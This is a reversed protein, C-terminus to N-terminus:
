LWRWSGSATGRGPRQVSQRTLPRLQLSLLRRCGPVSELGFGARRTNAPSLWDGPTLNGTEAALYGYYPTPADRYPKTNEFKGNLTITHHQGLQTTFDFNQGSVQGGTLSYSYAGVGQYGAFAAGNAATRDSAVNLFWNYTRM